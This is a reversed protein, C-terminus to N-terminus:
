RTGPRSIPGAVGVVVLRARDVVRHDVLPGASIARQASASSTACATPKARSWSRGSATRPPPWLPAPSPVHSSPTTISRESSLSTSTSGLGAGDADAAAAGPALDVGGGVFVAQGRRAPDDRRGADAAQGQTASQTVEGALAAQSDVVQQLGVEDQGAALADTRAGALVGVQVPGDAAAAPVEADHGREGEAQV